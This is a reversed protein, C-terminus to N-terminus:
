EIKKSVLGRNLTHKVSIIHIVYETTDHLNPVIKEVKETKM